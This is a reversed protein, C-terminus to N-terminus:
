DLFKIQGVVLQRAYRARQRTSSHPYKNGAKRRKPAGHRRFGGFPDTFRLSGIGAILSAMSLSLINQFRM